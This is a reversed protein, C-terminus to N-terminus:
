GLITLDLEFGPLVDEGSLPQEFSTRIEISGDARYIHVTQKEPDILWALRCGNEIWEIMKAKLLPLRDSESMREIVFDPCFPLFKKRQESSLSDWKELPIWSVDPARM